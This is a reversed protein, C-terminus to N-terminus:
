IARAVEEIMDTEMRYFPIATGDELMTTGEGSVEFGVSRYARIARENAKRVTLRIRTVGLIRIAEQMAIYIARRGIGKGLISARGIIIGLIGLTDGPRRRDVWVGGIAESNLTIAFWIFDEGWNKFDAPSSYNLPTVKQMYKYSGVAQSWSDLQALDAEEFPRLSMNM